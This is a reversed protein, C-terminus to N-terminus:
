GACAQEEFAGCIFDEEEPLMEEAEALLSLKGTRKSYKLVNESLVEDPGVITSNAERVLQNIQRPDPVSSERLIIFEHLSSPIAIYDEGLVHAIMAQTGPYFLAAAGFRQRDTTLVYCTEQGSETEYGFSLERAGRLSAANSKWANDLAAKFLKEMDYSYQQAIDNNVVTSFLGGDSAKIQVDCILAYGNGVDRYPVTKLYERNHDMGVLRLGARRRINRYHMDPLEEAPVPGNERNSIYQEALERVLEEPDTGRLYREFLDNLYYTPTPEDGKEFCLGYLRRDNLKMVEEARVAVDEQMEERLYKEMKEAALASFETINM